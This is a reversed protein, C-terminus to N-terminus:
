SVGMSLLLLSDWGFSPIGWLLPSHRLFLTHALAKTFLDAPQLETPQYRIELAGQAILQRV